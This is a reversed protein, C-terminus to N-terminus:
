ATQWEPHVDHLGVVAGLELRPEVPVELPEVDPVHVNARARRM